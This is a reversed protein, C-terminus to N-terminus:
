KVGARNEPPVDFEDREFRRAAGYPIASTDVDGVQGVDRVPRGVSDVFRSESVRQHPLQWRLYGKTASCPRVRSM